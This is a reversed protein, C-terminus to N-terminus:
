LTIVVVVVCVVWAVWFMTPRGAPTCITFTLGPAGGECACGLVTAATEGLTTIPLWCITVLVLGGFAFATLIKERKEWERMWRTLKTKNQENMWQKSYNQWVKTKKRKRKMMQMKKRCNCRANCQNILPISDICSVFFISGWVTIHSESERQQNPKIRGSNILWNVGSNQM